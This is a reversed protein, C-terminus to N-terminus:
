KIYLTILHPTGLSKLFIAIKLFYNPCFYHIILIEQIVKKRRLTYHIHLSKYIFKYLEDYFRMM